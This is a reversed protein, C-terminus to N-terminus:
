VGSRMLELQVSDIARAGLLCGRLDFILAIHPPIGPHNVQQRIVVGHDTNVVIYAGDLHKLAYNIVRNKPTCGQAEYTIFGNNPFSQGNVPIILMLSMILASLTRM